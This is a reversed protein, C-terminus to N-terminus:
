EKYGLPRVFRNFVIYRVTSAATIGTLLGSAVGLPGFSKALWLGLTLTVSLAILNVKFNVDPREMAWLGYAAASAIASAVISMALVSVITHNGAYKSGYLLAVFQGGFISMVLCYLAMAGVLFFTTKRVGQRLEGIGQTYARAIKPALLNEIGVLLPNVVAVAGWCASFVGAAATGHFGMLLWQYLQGSMLWIINGAFIWKGFSWNRKLDHITQILRFSFMKRRSIVWVLAAIGCATGIVWYAQRASLMGLHSLMLLGGIQNVAVVSDLILATKMRLNAFCVRRAYERLMIFWVVVVLAWMVPALGQPGVGISLVLGAIASATVTLGSLALQHILTNGNYQAIASGKLRPIYVTHPLSILSTQMNVVFLVISFGLMYLGFEEKTCARGIIVGTLFNTASVVGQDVLAVMGKRTTTGSALKISALILNSPSM